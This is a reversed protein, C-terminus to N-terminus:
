SCWNRFFYLSPIQRKYVDIIKFVSLNYPRLILHIVFCSSTEYPILLDHLFGQSQAQRKYSPLPLQSSRLLQFHMDIHSCIIQCLESTYSHPPMPLHTSLFDYGFLSQKESCYLPYNYDPIHFSWRLNEHNKLFIAFLNGPNKKSVNAPISYLSSKSYMSPKPPVIYPRDRICM